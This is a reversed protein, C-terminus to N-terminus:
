PAEEFGGEPDVKLSIIYFSFMRLFTLFKATKQTSLGTVPFLDFIWHTKLLYYVYIVIIIYNNNYKYNKYSSHSLFGQNNKNVVKVKQTICVKLTHKFYKLLVKTKRDNSWFVDRNEVITCQM